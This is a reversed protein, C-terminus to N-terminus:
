IRKLPREPHFLIDINIRQSRKIATASIGEKLLNEDVIFEFWFTSEDAEEIVISIKTVFVNKTQAVCTARYNAAVSTSCRILYVIIM